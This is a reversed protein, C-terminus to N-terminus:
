IEQNTQVRKTAEYCLHDFQHNTMESEHKQDKEKTKKGFTFGGARPM